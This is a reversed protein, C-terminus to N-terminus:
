RLVPWVPWFGCTGNASIWMIYMEGTTTVMVIKETWLEMLGATNGTELVPMRKRHKVLDTLRM